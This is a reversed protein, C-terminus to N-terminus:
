QPAALAAAGRCSGVQEYAAVIDLKETPSKLPTRGGTPDTSTPASVTELRLREPHILDSLHSSEIAM